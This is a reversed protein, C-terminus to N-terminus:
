DNQLKYHLKIAKSIRKRVKRQESRAAADHRRDLFQQERHLKEYSLLRSQDLSGSAIADNVACGPETDHSCDNFRCQKALEAIDDFAEGLGTEAHWPQFERMGPTDILVGGTPMLFLRRYTTAHRGRDDDSRIQRTTQVESGLLCNIITSKGVGSSGLLVVTKRPGIYPALEDLGQGQIASLIHVSVGPAIAGIEAVRADPDRCLDSKNLVVVPDAGSDWIAALYREIRRLNFDANLSTVVFVIDVNTVLIQEATREGAAKRSLSTRRPLIAHILAKRESTVSGIAVWDGVAPFDKRDAASHRLRGTVEAALEGCEAIVRYTKRQEEVVRAPILGHSITSDWLNQFHSNWGLSHLYV